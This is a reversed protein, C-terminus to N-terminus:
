KVKRDHGYGTAEYGIVVVFPALTLIGLCVPLSFSMKAMFFAVALMVFSGGWLAFYLRKRSSLSYYNAILVTSIYFGVAIATFALTEGLSLKSKGALFQGATQLGAGMAVISSFILIHLFGWGYARERRSKLFDGFPNLFYIWWCGFALGVCATGIAIPELSWGHLEVTANTMAVAGAVGEGLAIIALCSYRDAIHHAHWPPAGWKRYFLLPGIFEVCGLVAMFLLAQFLPLRLFILFTWLVQAVFVVTANAVLARRRIPDHKAAHIWLFIMVLRMIVYGLVMISNDLRLGEEISQFFRPLGLTFVVVGVMHLMTAARFTADDTDYASAFWSYSMWAWCIALMSIGFSLLSAFLAGQSLLSSLQQGVVTLSIAFTLDFFLELPTSVRNAENIDRGSM